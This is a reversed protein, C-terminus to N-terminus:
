TAVEVNLMDDREGFASLGRDFIQSRGARVAVGAFPRLKLRLALQMEGVSKLLDLVEGL